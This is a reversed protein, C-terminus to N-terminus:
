NTSTFSCCNICVLPYAGCARFSCWFYENPRHYVCHRMRHCLPHVIHSSPSSSSSPSPLPSPLLTRRCRLVAYAYPCCLGAAQARDDRLHLQLRALLASPILTTTCNYPTAYVGLEQVPLNNYGGQSPILRLLCREFNSSVTHRSHRLCCCRAVALQLPQLAAIRLRLTRTQRWTRREGRGEIM